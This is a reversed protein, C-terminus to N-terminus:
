SEPDSNESDSTPEVSFGGNDEFNFTMTVVGTANNTVSYTSIIGSPIKWTFGGKSILRLGVDIGSTAATVLATHIDERVTPLNVDFTGTINRSTTFSYTRGNDNLYPGVKVVQTNVTAQWQSIFRANVYQAENLGGSVRLKLWGDLGRIMAM